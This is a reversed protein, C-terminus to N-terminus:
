SSQIEKIRWKEEVFLAREFPQIPALSIVSIEHPFVSLSVTAFLAVANRTLIKFRTRASRSILDSPRFEARIASITALRCISTFKPRERHMTSGRVKEGM